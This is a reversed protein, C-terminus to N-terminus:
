HLIFFPYHETFIFKDQVQLFVILPTRATGTGLDSVYVTIEYTSQNQLTPTVLPKWKGRIIPIYRLTGKLFVM